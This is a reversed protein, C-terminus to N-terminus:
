NDQATDGLAEDSEHATEDAADGGLVSEGAPRDMVSVGLVSQVDSATVADSSARTSLTFASPDM